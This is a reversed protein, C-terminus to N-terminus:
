IIISNIQVLVLGVKRMCFPFFFLTRSPSLFTTTNACYLLLYTAPLFIPHFSFPLVSILLSLHPLLFPTDIVCLVVEM